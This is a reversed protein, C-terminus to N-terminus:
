APGLPPSTTHGTGIGPAFFAAALNDQRMDTVKATMDSVSAAHIAGDSAAHSRYPYPFPIHHHRPTPVDFNAHFVPLGTLGAGTSSSGHYGRDLAIMHKKEPRGTINYIPLACTQVGTVLACRTHRRRSSFFFFCVDILFIIFLWLSLSWIM